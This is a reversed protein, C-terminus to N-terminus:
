EDRTKPHGLHLHEQIPTTERASHRLAIAGREIRALTAAHRAARYAAAGRRVWLWGWVYIPLMLVPPWWEWKRRWLTIGAFGLCALCMTVLGRRMWKQGRARHAAHLLTQGPSM